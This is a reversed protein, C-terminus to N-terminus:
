EAAKSEGTAYNIEVGPQINYVFVNFCIGEGEDEVSWAEMLAGEAVLNDGEFMPYVRYMVHNGTEKIYDAVMNEFPLMGDVNMYRTGTILNERNANEGTLQFGILHCRNYLYKGDVFDYKATVWGSPKVSSISGREETPMLDPGINAYVVGCRGLEDLETYVEFSDTMDPTVVFFPINDNVVCYAEGSYDPVDELTIELIGFDTTVPKVDNEGTNEQEDGQLKETIQAEITATPGAPEVPAAEPGMQPFVLIAVVFLAALVLPKVWKMKGTAREWMDQMFPLPLALVAAVVLLVSSISMGFLYAGYLCLLVFAWGTPINRKGKM